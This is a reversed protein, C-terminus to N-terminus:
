KKSVLEWLTMQNNQMLRMRVVGVGPTMWRTVLMAQQRGQTVDTRMDVRWAQFTGMPVKVKERRTVRIWARAPLTTKNIGITGQWTSIQGEKVPLTILPLEPTVPAPGNVWTGVISIGTPGFKFTDHSELRNESRGELVQGPLATTELSSEKGDSRTVKYRWRTGPVLPLLKSTSLAGPDYVEPDARLYNLEEGHDAQNRCGGLLVLLGLLLWRGQLARLSAKTGRGKKGRGEASSPNEGSNPSPSARV